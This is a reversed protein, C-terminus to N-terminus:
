SAPPARGTSDCRGRWTTCPTCAIATSGASSSARRRVSDPGGRQAARRYCDLAALAMPSDVFIPVDPIEGQEVLRRLELLVLETRDVAFAPILVSGGREVTRRVSIPRSTCM